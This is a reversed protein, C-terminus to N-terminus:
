SNLRIEIETVPLRIKIGNYEKFKNLCEKYEEKSIHHKKYLEDLIGLTGIVTVHETEAALRLHKDGTLLTIKRNKAIALAIKDYKSLRKYKLYEITLLLETDDIEVKQLGLRLLNHKFNKPNLFEDEIAETYMIYTYSLKFPLEEKGIVLFDIWVNTDSSIYEMKDGM